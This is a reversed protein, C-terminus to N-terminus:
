QTERPRVDPQETGPAADAKPKEGSKALPGRPVAKGVEPGRLAKEAAAAEQKRREAETM